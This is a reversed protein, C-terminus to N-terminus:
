QWLQREAYPHAAATQFDQRATAHTMHEPLSVRVVEWFAISEGVDLSDRISDFVLVPFRETSNKQIGRLFSQGTACIQSLPGFFFQAM